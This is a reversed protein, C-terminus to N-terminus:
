TVWFAFELAATQASKGANEAAERRGGAGLDGPPPQKKCIKGQNGHILAAITGSGSVESAGTKLTLKTKPTGADHRADPLCVRSSFM